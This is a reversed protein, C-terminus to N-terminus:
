DVDFTGGTLLKVETLLSITVVLKKGVDLVGSFCTIIILCSCKQTDRQERQKHVQACLLDNGYSACSLVAM